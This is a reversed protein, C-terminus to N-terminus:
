PLIRHGVQSFRARNYASCTLCFSSNLTLFSSVGAQLNVRGVQEEAEKNATFVSRIVAFGDVCTPFVGIVGLAISAATVPDM